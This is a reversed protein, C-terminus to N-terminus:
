RARPDHHERAYWRSVFDQLEGVNEYRLAREPHEVHFEEPFLTVIYETGYNRVNLLAGKPWHEPTQKPAPTSSDPVPEPQVVPEPQPTRERQEQMGREYGKWWDRRERRREKRSPLHLTGRKNDM